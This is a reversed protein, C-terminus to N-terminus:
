RYAYEALIHFRKKLAKAISIKTLMTKAICPAATCSPVRPKGLEDLAVDDLTGMM